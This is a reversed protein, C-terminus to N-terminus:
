TSKISKKKKRYFSVPYSQYYEYLSKVLGSQSKPKIMRIGYISIIIWYCLFRCYIYKNLKVFSFHKYNLLFNKLRKFRALLLNLFPRKVVFIDQKSWSKYQKKTVAVLVPERNDTVTILSGEDEDNNAKSKSFSNSVFSWRWEGKLGSGYKSEDLVVKAKKM